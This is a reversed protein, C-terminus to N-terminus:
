ASANSFYFGAAPVFLTKDYWMQVEIVDATRSEERWRKTLVGQADPFGFSWRPTAALRPDLQNFEVPSYGLLADKGWIFQKTPSQGENATNVLASAVIYRNVKFAKALQENTLIGDFPISGGGFKVIDKLVPHISLKAHVPYSVLFFEPLKGTAQLINQKQAEVAAQPDSNQFDSWQGTGALTTGPCQAKLMAQWDYEMRLRLKANLNKTTTFDLNVPLASLMKRQEDSIVDKKAQGQCWFRFANLSYSAVESAESKPARATEELDFVEQGWAYIAGSPEDVPLFPAILPSVFDLNDYGISVNNLAQDFYAM